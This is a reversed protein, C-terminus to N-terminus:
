RHELSRDAAEALEPLACVGMLCVLAVAVSPWRRAVGALVAPNRM